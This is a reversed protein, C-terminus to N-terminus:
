SLRLSDQSYLDDGCQYTAKRENRYVSTETYNCLILYVISALTCYRHHSSLPSFDKTKQTSCYRYFQCLFFGAHVWLCNSLFLVSLPLRLFVTSSTSSLSIYPIPGSLNPFYMKQCLASLFDQASYLLNFQVSFVDLGQSSNSLGRDARLLAASLSRQQIDAHHLMIKHVNQVSM